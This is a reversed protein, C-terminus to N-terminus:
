YEEALLMTCHDGDDIIYVKATVAKTLATLIYTMDFKPQESTHKIVQLGNEVSLNFVQLWDKPEPMNDVAEWMFIQIDIPIEADIGRTLYRGKSREFM